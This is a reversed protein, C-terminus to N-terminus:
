RLASCFFGSLLRLSSTRSRRVFGSHPSVPSSPLFCESLAVLAGVGCGQRRVLQEPGFSSPLTLALHSYGPSLHGGLTQKQGSDWAWGGAVNGAAPIALGGKGGEREAGGASSSAFTPCRPDASHGWPEVAEPLAELTLLHGRVGLLDDPSTDGAYM